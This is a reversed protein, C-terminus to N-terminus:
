FTFLNVRFTVKVSNDASATYIISSAIDVHFAVATVRKDHGSMRYVLKGSEREFLLADKDVGGSLIWSNLSDQSIAISTVGPRSSLHPSLSSVSNTASINEKTALTDAPKRHKRKSSLEKCKENIEILAATDLTIPQVNEVAEMHVSDGNPTIKELFGTAKLSAIQERAEDRERM